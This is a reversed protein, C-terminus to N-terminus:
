RIFTAKVRVSKLMYAIWITGGACARIVERYDKSSMEKALSPILKMGVLDATLFAASFSLFLIYLLPFTSRKQFFLALLLCVTVLLTLNGLLEGILLPAFLPHYGEATSNTLYHWSHPEYASLTEYIGVALRYPSVLLGFGV